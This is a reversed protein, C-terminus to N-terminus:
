QDVLTGVKMLNLEKQAKDACKFGIYKDAHKTDDFCIFAQKGIDNHNLKHSSIKGYKGFMSLLKKETWDPPMNKIFLNNGNKIM